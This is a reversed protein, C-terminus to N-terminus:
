AKNIIFKLKRAHSQTHEYPLHLSFLFTRKLTYSDNKKIGKPGTVSEWYATIKKKLENTQNTVETQELQTLATEISWLHQRASKFLSLTKIFDEASFTQDARSELFNNIRELKQCLIVLEEILLNKESRKDGLKDTVYLPILLALFLVLLLNGAAVIDIKTNLEFFPVNKFIFGLYLGTTFTMILLVYYRKKM